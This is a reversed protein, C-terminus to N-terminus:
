NIGEESIDTADNSDTISEKKNVFYDIDENDMENARKNRKKDKFKRKGIHLGLIFSIIAISSFIVILLIKNNIYIKKEESKIDKNENTNIYFNIKKSSHDFILQYKNLFLKGFTWTKYNYRDFIILFYYFGNKELFLDNGSFKFTFNFEAHFLNLIPFNKITTENFDGKKCYYVFYHSNINDEFCINKQMLDRFFNTAIKSKYEETGLIYSISFSIIGELYHTLIIDNDITINRFELNWGKKQMNNLCSRLNLNNFKDKEYIHPYDGIILYGELNDDKTNNSIYKITWLHNEIIGLKKLEIIFNYDNNAINNRFLNLSLIACNYKKNNENYNKAQENEFVFGFNDVKIINNNKINIYDNDSKYFYFSDEAEISEYFRPSKSKEKTINKFSKSATKNYYYKQLLCNLKRISFIIDEESIVLELNQPPNGGQIVTYLNNPLFNNILQYSSSINIKQHLNYLPLIILSYSSNLIIIAIFINQLKIKM